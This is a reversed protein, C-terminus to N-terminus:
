QLGTKDIVNGDNRQLLFVFIDDEIFNDVYTASGDAFAVNLGGPHASTYGLTYANLGDADLDTNANPRYDEPAIDGASYGSDINALVFADFFFGQSVQSSGDGGIGALPSGLPASAISDINPVGIRVLLNPMTAREVPNMPDSAFPDIGGREGFLITNSRGDTIDRDRVKSNCCYGGQGDNLEGSGFTSTTSDDYEIDPNLILVGANAGYNMKALNLDPWNPNIDAMPDSPCTYLSLVTHADDDVDDLTGGTPISNNWYEDRVEYRRYLTDGEIYPLIMTAWGYRNDMDPEGANRIDLFLEVWGPPLKRTAAEYNQTALVLQRINNLCETRRAAERVSQVAPLLLAVLIGIIAIVVLLEVLTFAKRKIGNPM